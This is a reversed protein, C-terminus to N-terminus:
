ARNSRVNQVMTPLVSGPAATCNATHHLTRCALNLPCWVWGLSVQIWTNSIVHLTLPSEELALTLSSSGAFCLSSCSISPLFQSASAFGARRSPAVAPQSAM